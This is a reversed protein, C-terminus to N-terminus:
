QLHHQSHACQQLDRRGQGQGQKGEQKQQKREQREQGQKEQKQPKTEEEEQEKKEFKKVREKQQQQTQQGEEGEQKKTGEGEGGKPPGQCGVLAQALHDLACAKSHPHWGPSTQAKPSHLPGVM